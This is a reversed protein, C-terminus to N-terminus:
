SNVLSGDAVGTGTRIRLRDHCADGFARFIARSLPDTAFKWEPHWQVGLAFTSAHTVSVAEILGDPARAEVTLGDGLREVGQAHLSNVHVTPAGSALRALLGGPVVHLAHSPGYQTDLDDDKSERHDDRGQVTHVNQHLTGGFVVNMEQFGRCIALVPVAADVAARLLPLTTADRAADHLTGAASPPGNYRHPEINSYSGTFLLGDVTAIIDAAPQRYGLAPLMVALAHAGDVVAVLYKEGAIHSPHAGIMTRDASVGILPKTQM